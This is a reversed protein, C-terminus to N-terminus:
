GKAKVKGDLYVVLDGVTKIADFETAVVAVQFHDKLTMVMEVLDFSDDVLEKLEMAPQVTEPRKSLVECMVKVVEAAFEPTPPTKAKKSM